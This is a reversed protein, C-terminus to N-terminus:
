MILGRGRKPRTLPFHLEDLRAQRQEMEVWEPEPQDGYKICSLALAVYEDKHKLGEDTLFIKIPFSFHNKKRLALGVCHRPGVWKPDDVDFEYKIIWDANVEGTDEIVMILNTIDLSDNHAADRLEAQVLDDPSLYNPIADVALPFAILADKSESEFAPGLISAGNWLCNERAPVFITPVDIYTFGVPESVTIDLSDMSATYAQMYEEGTLNKEMDLWYNLHETGNVVSQGAMAMMLPIAIATCFLLSIRRMSIRM